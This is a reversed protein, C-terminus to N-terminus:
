QRPSAMAGHVAELLFAQVASQRVPDARGCVFECLLDTPHEFDCHSAEPLVRDVVLNPLAEV